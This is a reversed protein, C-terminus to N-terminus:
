DADFVTFPRLAMGLVYSKAAMADINPNLTSPFQTVGITLADRAAADGPWLWALAAVLGFAAARRRRRPWASPERFVNALQVFFAESAQFRATVTMNYGGDAVGSYAVGVTPKRRPVFRGLPQKQGSARM